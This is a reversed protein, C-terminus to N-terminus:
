KEVQAASESQELTALHCIKLGLIGIHGFKLPDQLPLHQYVKHGNPINQSWKTYKTAM